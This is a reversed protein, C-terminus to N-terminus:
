PEAPPTEAAGDDKGNGLALAQAEARLRRIEAVTAYVRDLLDRHAEIGAHILWSAADSRTTRIGAEILADIADLDRNGIRCTVVNNKTTGPEASEDTRRVYAVQTIADRVRELNVGMSTLVGAAIGEGECILGLLLHETGIYRHNLRRAEDVALEMVKKSRPTLGVEGVVPRDKHGIIMDVQIRVKQPRVGLGQLIGVARSDDVDVLGLLLHETGIYNHNLRMAEEQALNLVKRAQEDFKDFRDRMQGEDGQQGRFRFM